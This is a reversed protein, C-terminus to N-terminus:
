SRDNKSQQAIKRGMLGLYVLLVGLVMYLIGAFPLGSKPLERIAGAPTTPTLLPENVSGTSEGVNVKLVNVTELINASSNDVISSESEVVEIDSSGETIAKFKITAVTALLQKADSAEAKLIITGATNNVTNETENFNADKFDIQTGTLESDSDVVQLISPSFKVKVTYSLISKGGSDLNIDVNFESNKAFSSTVTKLKISAVGSTSTPTPSTTVTVTPTSTSVGELNVTYTPQVIADAQASVKKLLGLDLKVM